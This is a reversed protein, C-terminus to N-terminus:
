CIMLRYKVRAVVPKYVVRCGSENRTLSSVGSQTPNRWCLSFRPKMTSFPVASSQKSTVFRQTAVAWGPSAHRNVLSPVPRHTKKLDSGDPAIWIAPCDNPQTADTRGPDGAVVSLIGNM